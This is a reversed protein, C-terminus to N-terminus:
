KMNSFPSGVPLHSRSTARSTPKKGAGSQGGLFAIGRYPLIDDVLMRPATPQQNSLFSWKTVDLLAFM